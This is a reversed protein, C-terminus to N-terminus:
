EPLRFAFKAARTLAGKNFGAPLRYYMHALGADSVYTATLLVRPFAVSRGGKHLGSTDCLIVSGPGGECVLRDEGKTGLEVDSNVPHTGHGPVVSWRKDGMRGWNHSGKIYTFHRDGEHPENLLIFFKIIKWDEHDRHWDNVIEHPPVDTEPLQYWLDTYSLRSYLGLYSNVVGLLGPSSLLRAFTDPIEPTQKLGFARLVWMKSGYSSERANIQEQMPPSQVLEEAAKAVEAFDIGPFVSEFPGFYIGDERLRKVIEENVPLGSGQDNSHLHAARKNSFDYLKTCFRLHYYVKMLYSLPWVALPVGRVYHRWSRGRAKRVNSAFWDGFKM